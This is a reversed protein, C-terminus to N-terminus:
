NVSIKSTLADDCGMCGQKAIVFDLNFAPGLSLTSKPTSTLDDGNPGALDRETFVKVSIISEPGEVQADRNYQYTFPRQYLSDYSSIVGDMSEPPFQLGNSISDLAVQNTFRNIALPQSQNGDFIGVLSNVFPKGNVQSVSGVLSPNTSGTNIKVLAQNVMITQTNLM